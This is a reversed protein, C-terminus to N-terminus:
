GPLVRFDGLVAKAVDVCRKQHGGQTAGDSLKNFSTRAKQPRGAGLSHEAGLEWGPSGAAAQAREACGQAGAPWPRRMVFPAGRPDPRPRPPPPRLRLSRLIQLPTLGDSM